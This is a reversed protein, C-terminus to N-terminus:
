QAMSPAARGGIMPDKDGGSWVHWVELLRWLGQEFVWDYQYERVLGAAPKLRTLVTGATGDIRVATLQERQLGHPSPGGYAPAARRQPSVGYGQLLAHFDRGIADSQARDRRGAHASAADHWREFDGIFSRVRDMLAVSPADTPLRIDFRSHEDAGRQRFAARLREAAADHQQRVACDLPTMQEDGCILPDAGRELLWQVAKDDGRNAAVHLCTSGYRNRADIDAGQALLYEIHQLRGNFTASQLVGPAHIDAGRQVLARVLETSPTGVAWLLPTGGDNTAEINVDRSHELLMLAIDTRGAYIASFLATTHEKTCVLDADAGADLLVRVNDAHKAAAAAHLATRGTSDQADLPAGAEILLRMVGADNWAGAAILLLTPGGEYEAAGVDPRAALARELAPRDHTYLAQKAAASFRSANM